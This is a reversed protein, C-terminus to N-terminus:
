IRRWFLIAFGVGDFVHNFGRLREFWTRFTRGTRDKVTYFGSKTPLEESADIWDFFSIQENM